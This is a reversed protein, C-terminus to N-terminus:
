ARPPSENFAQFLENKVAAVENKRRRMPGKQRCPASRSMPRPKKVAVPKPAAPKKKLPATSSKGCRASKEKKMQEWKAKWEKRRHWRAESEKKLQQQEAELEKM